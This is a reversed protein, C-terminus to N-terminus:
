YGHQSCHQKLRVIQPKTTRQYIKAKIFLKESKFVQLADPTEDLAEAATDPADEAREDKADDAEPAIELAAEPAEPATELAVEAPPAGAAVEEPAAVNFVAM